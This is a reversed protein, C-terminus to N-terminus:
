IRGTTFHWGAVLLRKGAGARADFEIGPQELIWADIKELYPRLVDM